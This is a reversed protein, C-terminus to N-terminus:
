PPCTTSSSSVSSSVPHIVCDFNNMRQWAKTPAEHSNQTSNNEKNLKASNQSNTKPPIIKKKFKSHTKLFSRALHGISFSSPVLGSSPGGIVYCL